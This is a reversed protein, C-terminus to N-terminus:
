AKNFGIINRFENELAPLLMPITEISQNWVKKVDPHVMSDGNNDKIAVNSYNGSIFSSLATIRDMLDCCTTSLYLRNKGYFSYLDKLENQLNDILAVEEDTLTHIGYIHEWVERKNIRRDVEEKIERCQLELVIRQRCSSVEYLKSYLESIVEAQKVYIKSFKIEHETELKKLDSKIEALSSNHKAIDSQMLRNAWVKGLWASLGSIIIASGGISGIIAVAVEFIEKSSL